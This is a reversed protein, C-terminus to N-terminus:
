GVWENLTGPRSPPRAGTPANATTPASLRPRPAGPEDRRAGPQERDGDSFSLDVDTGYRAELASQLRDAQEAALTRLQPDTFAIAVHVREDDRRAKVTMEGDGEGLSLQVVHWTGAVARPAAEGLKQLWAASLIPRPM